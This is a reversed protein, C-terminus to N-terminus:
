RKKDIVRYAANVISERKKDFTQKWKPIEELSLNPNVKLLKLNSIFSDINAKPNQNSRYEEILKIDKDILDLSRSIMHETVVEKVNEESIRKVWKRAKDTWQTYRQLGDDTLQYNLNNIINHVERIFPDVADKVCPYLDLLRVLQRHVKEAEPKIQHAKISLEQITDPKKWLHSLLWSSKKESEMPFVFDHTSKIGSLRESM